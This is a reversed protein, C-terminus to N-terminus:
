PQKQQKSCLDHTLFYVLDYVCFTPWPMTSRFTHENYAWSRVGDAKLPSLRWQLSVTDVIEMDIGSCFWCGGVTPKNTKCRYLIYAPDGRLGWLWGLQEWQQNIHKLYTRGLNWSEIHFLELYQLQLFQQSSIKTCEWLRVWLTKLNAMLLNRSTNEVDWSLGGGKWEHALICQVAESQNNQTHKQVLKLM